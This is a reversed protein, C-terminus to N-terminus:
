YFRCYIYLEVLICSKNLGDNFTRTNERFDRIDVDYRPVVVVVVMVSILSIVTIFKLPM